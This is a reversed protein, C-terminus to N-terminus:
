GYASASIAAKIVAVAVSRKGNFVAAQLVAM